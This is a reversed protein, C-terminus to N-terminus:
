ATQLEGRIFLSVFTESRKTTSRIDRISSFIKALEDPKDSEPTGLKRHAIVQLLEVNSIDATLLRLYRDFAESQVYGGSEWRCYTKEGIGLLDSMASQTKGLGNRFNRLEQPTLLGQAKRQAAEIASMADDDLLVEGCNACQLWTLNPIVLPVPKDQRDLYTTEYDGNREKLSEKKCQPCVFTSM